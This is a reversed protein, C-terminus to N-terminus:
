TRAKPDCRRQRTDRVAHRKVESICGHGASQRKTSCLTAPPERPAPGIHRRIRSEAMTRM